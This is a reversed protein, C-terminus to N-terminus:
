KMPLSEPVKYVDVVRREVVKKFGKPVVYNPDQEVKEAMIALYERDRASKIEQYDGGALNINLRKLTNAKIVM